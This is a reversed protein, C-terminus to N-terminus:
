PSVVPRFPQGYNLQYDHHGDDAGQGADRYGAVDGIFFFRPYGGGYSFDADDFIFNIAIKHVMMFIRLVQAIHGTVNENVGPAVRILVKFNRSDIMFALTFGILPAFVM